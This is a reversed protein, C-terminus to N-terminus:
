SETAERCARCARDHAADWFGVATAVQAGCVARVTTQGKKRQVSLALAHRIPNASPRRSVASWYGSM